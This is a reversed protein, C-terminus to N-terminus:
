PRQGHARGGPRYSYVFQSAHGSPAGDAGVLWDSRWVGADSTVEYGGGVWSVKRASAAVVSAKAETARRALFTDLQSRDVFFAGAQRTPFDGIVRGPAALRLRDVPHDLLWGPPDLWAMQDVAWGSLCGGCPKAKAPAGSLVLVKAGARALATAAAAGAPGLGIVIVDFREAMVMAIVHLASPPSADAGQVWSRPM